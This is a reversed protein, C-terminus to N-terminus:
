FKEVVDTPPVFALAALCRINLAFDPNQQYQQRVEPMSQVRRWICQTLHFFCGQVHINPFVRLFSNMAAKEFDLNVCQVNVNVLLEKLKEFARDYTNEQKNPLLMYVLPVVSSSMTTAHITYVEGFLSPCTKFTGDAFWSPSHRLLQLNSDTALIIIRNEDLNGSDFQLFKEGARSVKLREPLEIEQRNRPQLIEVGQTRRANRVMKKVLEKSPLRGSVSLPANAAVMAHIVSPPEQTQKAREKVSNLTTRVMLQTASSVHNHGSVEKVIVNDKMHVRAPCKARTYDTCRWISNQDEGGKRELCFTYSRYVLLDKNKQSKVFSIEDM